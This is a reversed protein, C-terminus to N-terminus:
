PPLGRWRCALADWARAGPAPVTREALVCSGTADITVDPQWNLPLPVRGELVSNGGNLPVAAWVGDSAVRVRLPEGRRLALKRVATLVKDAETAPLRDSESGVTATGPADGLESIGSFRLAPLVLAASIAMLVLVVLLELLTVGPRPLGSRTHM